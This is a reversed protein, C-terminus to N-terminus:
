ANAAQRNVPQVALAYTDSNAPDFHEGAWFLTVLPENSINTINHTYLTPIDIAQPHNGNVEYEVVEDSFLKRIRIKARGAIVLFREVKNLHFHEGRTIAPMTTSVFVQGGGDNRIAEFLDGRHDAHVTMAVPRDIDSIYSRMVNFLRHDFSDDLNPVVGDCYRAHLKTLRELVESVKTPRGQPRIEGTTENDIVDWIIEAVQQAHLLSLDGDSNIVPQEGVVVQHAFTSVVSNYFPKGCEGFVHPLVMNCYSSRQDKAWEGIIDGAAAKSYGYRSDGDVHTSSSYLMHPRVENRRCVDVLRTAIALNESVVEEDSGRNKGALHVIADTRSVADDMWADDGFQTRGCRILEVSASKSQLFASLHWGILGDSGTVLITRRQPSENSM